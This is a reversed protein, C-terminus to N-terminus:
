GVSGAMEMQILRNLEVAYEMPLEKVIPELFGNVMLSRAESAELGRACLYFLQEENLRSVSAEHEVQAQANHIKVTPYTDSRSAKDLLLADCVVNTKVEKAEPAVYLEGRYGARGGQRSVSKSIVRSTTRPALHRIKSGVDQHQGDGASTFSHVEGRAGEGLLHIAPYKMTVRSGLNGDIWQMVGNQYVVARKTTLNYIDKSWNQITTYVVRAGPKVVVEVVGSHLSATNYTPATCGEVYHVFSGEDAIILTREFQGLRESNIRFYTQLPLDVQVGKPIYIFSGGSFAASNLAAFKNDTPPIVSGFYQGFLDPHNKLGNHSDTFIVGQDALYQQTSQYVLESEYQAGVGALYKKEAEPIGLRDFTEKIETPVEEWSRRASTAPQLYYLLDDLHLGSLDAGWTPLPKDKFVALAKLRYELLWAPEQKQASISRVAEEGLGLGASYLSNRNHTRKKEM